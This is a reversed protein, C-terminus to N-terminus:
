AIKLLTNYIKESLAVLSRFRRNLCTRGIVDRAHADRYEPDTEWRNRAYDRASERRKNANRAYNRQWIDRHMEYYKPDYKKKATM